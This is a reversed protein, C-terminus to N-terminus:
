NGPNEKEGKKFVPVVNAFKWDVPVEGTHQSQQFIMSLPRTIAGALEKLVQLHIGNPGMSKLTNMQLLKKFHQQM